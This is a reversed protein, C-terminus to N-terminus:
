ILAVDKVEILEKPIESLFKSASHTSRADEIHRTIILKEEARTMAVYTLRREEELTEREKLAYANPLMGQNFGILFVVKAELGKSSHITMLTVKEKADVNPDENSSVEMYRVFSLISKDHKLREETVLLLENLNASREMHEANDQDSYKTLLYKIVTPIADKAEMEKDSLLRIFFEVSTKSKATIPKFAKLSKLASQHVEFLNLVKDATTKGVGILAKLSRELSAKDQDNTMVKLIALADKVELRQSFSLAGHITYPTKSKILGEEMARSQSNARYLVMFDNYSAGLKVRREIEGTVYDAEEQPTALPTYEIKAGVQGESYCNMPIKIDNNSILTNSATVITKSSRYNQELKLIQVDNRKVYDLILNPKAGRWGYISQNLDGVIFLNANKSLISLLVVNVTNSDQVEDALIYKFNEKVFTQAELDCMLALTAKLVIDDFDIKNNQHCTSNYLSYVRYTKYDKDHVVREPSSGYRQKIEEFLQFPTVMNSKLDSILKIMSNVKEKENDYGLTYMAESIALRSEYPSLITYDESLGVSEYFKSLVKLCVSHYTGIWMSHADENDTLKKMREAMESSAKRTFTICVIESPSVNLVDMLYALRTTLLRTKGSGAGALVLSDKELSQILAVRQTKDLGNLLEEKRNM